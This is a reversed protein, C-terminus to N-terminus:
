DKLFHISSFIATIAILVAFFSPLAPSTITMNYAGHIFVAFIFSFLAKEPQKTSYFVAMGVRIGCAAHIPSATFARLFAISVDAIGYLANELMAFGLGSVLGLSACTKADVPNRRKVLYFFPILLILRALEELFAIRFFVNFFEQFAGGRYWSPILSQLFAAVALSVIGASLAAFFRLATVSSKRLRFWFFVFIVPSAATLILLLLIWIESM